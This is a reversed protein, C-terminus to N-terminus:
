RRKNKPAKHIAKDAVPKKAKRLVAPYADPEPEGVLARYAAEHEAPVQGGVGVLLSAAAPDGERVIRGNATLYVRETATIVVADRGQDM